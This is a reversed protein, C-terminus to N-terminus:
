GNPLAALYADQQTVRCQTAEFGQGADAPSKIGVPRDERSPQAPLARLLRPLRRSGVVHSIFLAPGPCTSDSSAGHLGLSVEGEAHVDPVAGRVADKLVDSADIVELNRLRGVSRRDRAPWRRVDGQPLSRAHHM